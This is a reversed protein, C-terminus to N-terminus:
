LNKKYERINWEIEDLIEKFALVILSLIFERLPESADETDESARKLRARLAGNLFSEIARKYGGYIFPNALSATILASVITTGGLSIMNRNCQLPIRKIVFGVDSPPSLFTELEISVEGDPKELIALTSPIIM